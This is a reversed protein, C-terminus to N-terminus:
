HLYPEGADADGLAMKTVRPSDFLIYYYLTNKYPQLLRTVRKKNNYNAQYISWFQNFTQMTQGEIRYSGDVQTNKTKLIILAQQFIVPLQTYYDSALSLNKYFNWFDHSLLLNMQMHEYARKNYKNRDLLDRYRFTVNQPTILNVPMEARKEMIEKHASILSTDNVMAAYQDVFKKSVLNDELITLFKGASNYKGSIMNIKVLHELIRPCYPFGVLARYAWKESEAIHGMDYYYDSWYMYLLGFNGMEPNTGAPGILQPYDFYKELYQNSHDIARNYFYNLNVDYDKVSRVVSLVEDWKDHACYFNARVIKNGLVPRNTKILIISFAIILLFIFYISNRKYWPTGAESKLKAARGKPPNKQIILAKKDLSNFILESMLVLVPASFFFIYFFTNKIYNVALLSDTPYYEFYAKSLPIHFLIKFSLYPLIVCLAIVLLALIIAKKTDRFRFFLLILFGMSYLILCSGGGIYYVAPALIFYLFYTPNVSRLSLATFYIFAYVLIINFAATYPFYYNTFLGLLLTVPLFIILWATESRKISAVIGYALFLLVLLTVTIIVSGLWNITFFQMILNSIYYSIGGPFSLYPKLFYINTQFPPQQAFFLFQPKIAFLIFLFVSLTFLSIFVLGSYITGKSNM